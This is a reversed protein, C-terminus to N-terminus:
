YGGAMLHQYYYPSQVVAKLELGDGGNWLESRESADLAASFVYLADLDKTGTYLITDRKMAGITMSDADVAHGLFKAGLPSGALSQTVDDIYIEMNGSTPANIIALHKDNDNIYTTSGLASMIVSGGNVCAAQFNNLAGDGRYTIEWTDSNPFAVGDQSVSFIRKQTELGDDFRFWFAVAGTTLDLIGSDVAIDVRDDNGDFEGTGSGLIPTATDYTMSYVTGDRNNGSKDEVDSNFNIALELIDTLAM